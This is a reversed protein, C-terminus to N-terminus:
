EEKVFVLISILKINESIYIHIISINYDMYIYIHCVYMIM